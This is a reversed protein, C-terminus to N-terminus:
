IGLEKLKKDRSFEKFLEGVFPYKRMFKLKNKNKIMSHTKIIWNVLRVGIGLEDSNLLIYLPDRMLERNYWFDTNECTVCNGDDYEDSKIIMFDRNVIRIREHLIFNGVKFDKTFTYDFKETRYSNDTIWNKNGM